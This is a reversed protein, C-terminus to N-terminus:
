IGNGTNEPVSCQNWVDNTKSDDEEEDEDDDDDGDEQEEM